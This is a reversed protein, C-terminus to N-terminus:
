LRIIGRVATLTISVKAM